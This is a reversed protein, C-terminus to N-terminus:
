RDPSVWAWILPFFVLNNNAMKHTLVSPNSLNFYDLAPFLTQTFWSLNLVQIKLTNVAVSEGEGRNNLRSVHNQLNGMDTLYRLRRM